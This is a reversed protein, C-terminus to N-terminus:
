NNETTNWNLAKKIRYYIDTNEYMGTFLESGVGYAFVPVMVASHKNTAFNAAVKGTPASGGLISYGGTEHDATVIVLTEGNAAAFRFAKGIQQDFDLVEQVNQTTNNFHGADDIQSGEIMLFFGNKNKSLVELAKDVGQNIYASTREAVAPPGSEALLAVAKPGTISAVESAKTVVQYGKQRWQLLLDAHDQRQTFYRLGGAYMFDIPAALYKLAIAEQDNRTPHTVAFCAPTADTLECAVVLGTSKGHERADWMISRFQHGLSDMGIASNYTKHGTAMATASAASDTIKGYQNQTISFGTAQAQQMFLRGRNALLGGTVQAPGMGDGIMLIVNKIPKRPGAYPTLAPVPYPQDLQFERKYLPIEAPQADPTHKIAEIAASRDTPTTHTTTCALFCVSSSLLLASRFSQM